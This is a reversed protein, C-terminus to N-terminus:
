SVINLQNEINKIKLNLSEFQKQAKEDNMPYDGKSGYFSVMDIDLQHYHWFNKSYSKLENLEKKLKKRDLGSILYQINDM